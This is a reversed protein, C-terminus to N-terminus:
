RNVCKSLRYSDYDSPTSCHSIGQGNSPYYSVDFKALWRGSQDKGEYCDASFSVFDSQSNNTLICNKAFDMPRDCMSTMSALVVAYNNKGVLQASLEPAFQVILEAKFLPDTVQCKFNQNNQAFANVGVFLLGIVLKSM